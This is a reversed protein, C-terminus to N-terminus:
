TRKYVVCAITFLKKSNEIQFESTSDPKRIRYNLTDVSTAYRALLVIEPEARQPIHIGLALNLKFPFDTSTGYSGPM